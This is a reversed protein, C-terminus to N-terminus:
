APGESASPKRAIGVVQLGARKLPPLALLRDDLAATARTIARIGPLFRFLRNFILVDSNMFLCFGIFGCTRYAESELGATRLVPVTEEFRLPRETTHDLAPSLRYIVARLARWLWFDDVPERYFFLGGPKLIRAIESFLAARAGVHHVGGLMVVTDFGADALPLRTADGQVFRANPHRCQGLAAMLMNESIDVGVYRNIRAGFLDLAEGRGCCIEAVTGLEREGATELLIRDLYALYEQTHPYALNAIYAAAVRDYHARQVEADASLRSEAFLPVGAANLRYHGGDLTTALVGEGLTLAGGSAPCRLLGLFPTLSQQGGTM